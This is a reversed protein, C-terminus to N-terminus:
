TLPIPNYIAIDQLSTLPTGGTASPLLDRYKTHATTIKLQLSRPPGSDPHHRVLINLIYHQNSANTRRHKSYLLVHVIVYM